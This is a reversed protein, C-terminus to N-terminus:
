WSLRLMSTGASLQRSFFEFDWFQTNKGGHLAALMMKTYFRPLVFFLHTPPQFIPFFPDLSLSLLFAFSLPGATDFRYLPYPVRLHPGANSVPCEVGSRQFKRIYVVCTGQGEGGYDELDAKTAEIFSWYNQKRAWSGADQM